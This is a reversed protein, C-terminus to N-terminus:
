IFHRFTLSIRPDQINKEKLIAHQYDRQCLSTMISLSGNELLFKRVKKTKDNKLCFLREAGISIVAIYTNPDMDKENDKHYSISDQGNRYLNILCGNFYNKPLGLRSEINRAIGELPITYPQPKHKTNSYTYEINGEAAFGILRPSKVIKDKFKYQDQELNYSEVIHEFLIDTEFDRIFNSIYYLPHQDTM